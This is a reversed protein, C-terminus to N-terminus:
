RRLRNNRVPSRKASRQPAKSVAPSRPQAPPTVTATPRRVTPATRRAASAEPLLKETFTSKLHMSSGAGSFALVSEDLSLEQRIIRGANTDFTITGKSLRQVLQAEIKPNNVVDLVQTEVDITAIGEASVNTLELRQRAKIKKTGGSELYVDIEMPVHWVHGVHVAEAPLPYLMPTNSDGGKVQVHKQLRHLQNGQQDLTVVALPIGVAKAAEEYELPPTEDTESNYSVEQRGSITHRMDIKEVSHEVVSKGLPEAEHVKWRKISKSTTDATQSTGSITTEISAQHVVEYRIVEGPQFQYKLVYRQRNGSVNESDDAVIPLASFVIALSLSARFFNMM